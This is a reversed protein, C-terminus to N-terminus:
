CRESASPFSPIINSFQRFQVTTFIPKSLYLASPTDDKRKCCGIRDNGEWKQKSHHKSIKAMSDQHSQNSDPHHKPFTTNQWLLTVILYLSLDHQAKCKLCLYVLSCSECGEGKLQCHGNSRVNSIQSAYLCVPFGTSWLGLLMIEYYYNLEKSKGKLHKYFIIRKM